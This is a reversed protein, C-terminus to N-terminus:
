SESFHGLQESKQATVRMSNSSYLAILEAFLLLTLSVKNLRNRNTIQLTQAPSSRRTQAATLCQDTLHSQSLTLAHYFWQHVLLGLPLHTLSHALFILTLSDALNLSSMFFSICM